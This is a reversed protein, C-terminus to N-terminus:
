QTKAKYLAMVKNVYNQTETINPIQNGAREVKGPGANYAALALEPSQFKKLMSALYNAGGRLNEDPDFPNQVGLGRATDPMLQSLGLAGARSRAGPDYGSEAAVLSDFLAPDIGAQRAALEIKEKLDGPAIAPKVSTGGGFPNFPVAGGIAGELAGWLATNFAAPSEPQFFTDLRAQLEQM